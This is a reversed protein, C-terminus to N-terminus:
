EDPDQEEQGVRISYGRWSSHSCKGFKSELYEKLDKCNPVRAGDGINARYWDKFLVHIEGIRLIDTRVGTNVIHANIFDLLNDSRQQYQKTFQMVCDPKTAQLHTEGSTQISNPEASREVQTAVSIADGFICFRSVTLGIISTTSSGTHVGVKVRINPSPSGYKLPLKSMIHLARVAWLVILSAHNDQRIHLNAAVKYCQDTTSIVYVNMESSLKDLAAKVRGRMSISENSDLMTVVEKQAVDLVAITVSDFTQDDIRRGQKLAESVQMPLATRLLASARKNDISLAESFISNGQQKLVKAIADISPRSDPLISWCGKMLEHLDDGDNSSELTPTRWSNYLEVAEGEYPRRRYLVNYMLYGYNFIDSKANVEGDMSTVEPAMWDYQQHSFSAGIMVKYREDVFLHEPRLSRDYVPPSLGHLYRLGEMVDRLISVAMKRELHVTRNHLLGYLTGRPMYTTVCFVDSGNIAGGIVSLLNPHLLQSAKWVERLRQPVSIQTKSQQRLTLHGSIHNSTPDFMSPAQGQKPLCRKVAVETGFYNGLLVLGHRSQGVAKRLVHLDEWHLKPVQTLRYRRFFFAFITAVVLAVIVVPTVIWWWQVMKHIPSCPNCICDYQPPCTFGQVKCQNQLDNARYTGAPCQILQLTNSYDLCHATGNETYLVGLQTQVKLTRLLNQTSTWYAVSAGKAAANDPPIAYLGRTIASQVHLPVQPLACLISSPFLQTSVEYPLSTINQLNVVNITNAPISDAALALELTGSRIFGVDVFGETVVQLVSNSSGTILVVSPDTFLNLGAKYLEYWQAQAGSVQSLDALALSRGKIDALTRVGSHANAIITGALYPTEVGGALYVASALTTIDEDIHKAQLCNLLAPGMLIFDISSDKYVFDVAKSDALFDLTISRNTFERAALRFLEEWNAPDVDMSSGLIGFRLPGSANYANASNTMLCLSVTVFKWVRVSAMVHVVQWISKSLLDIM